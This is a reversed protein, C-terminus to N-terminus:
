MTGSCAGAERDCEVSLERFLVSKYQHSAVDIRLEQVDHLALEEDVADLSGIEFGCVEGDDFIEM